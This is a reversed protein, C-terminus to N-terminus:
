AYLLSGGGGEGARGGAKLTPDTTNRSLGASEFSSKLTVVNTEDGMWVMHASIVSGNCSLVTYWPTHSHLYCEPIGQLLVHM